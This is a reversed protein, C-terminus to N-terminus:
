DGTIRSRPDTTFRCCSSIRHSLSFWLCCAPASVHALQGFRSEISWLCLTISIFFLPLFGIFYRSTVFHTIGFLRCFLYLFAVPLFLVSLLICANRRNDAVFPLLLLLVASILSLPAYPVWDHFIGEILKWLNLPVPVNRLDAVTQGHYNLLLFSVWPLCMLLLSGNLVLFSRIRFDAKKGPFQYFWFIQSFVIFPISSYSAHFLVAYSAAALLLSCNDRTRLHRLFFYLGLMAFFMLLTYSRGEQSLSIHYTMFTLSLTCALAIKPSFSRALLYIMPLSLIGFILPIIRLDIEPRTFPYFQHTLLFFLPPHLFTPNDSYFKLQRGFDDRSDNYTYIEDMWLCKKDFTYYRLAFGVLLCVCLILIEKRRSLPM